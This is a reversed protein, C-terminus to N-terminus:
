PLTIRESSLDAAVLNLYLADSGGTVYVARGGLTAIDDGRGIHHEGPVETPEGTVTGAGDLALAFTGEYNDEEGSVSWQEYLVVYADGGLATIRPREAHMNSGLDTLWRLYNTESEGASSVTQASVADSEEVILSNTGQSMFNSQIRVLAVDRTGGVLESSVEASRETAFLAMYGYTPDSSQVVGGLRTFTNNAGTEGKIKYAAYAGDGGADNYHGLAVYRPYADGLHLEVFGTGDFLARQDFSHSAWMTATRTVSGDLANLHTSMAKQHRTGDLEPDPETNNGHVLLLRDGGWVLRSSAAVMPNVIIDSDSDAEGRAIDVDSEMLVCGSENFKVIRVIDPRHVGNPPYVADVMEDEDVGTAVYYSGGSDRTLGMVRGLSGIRYSRTVEYAQGVEAIHVLYAFEDSEQDQFLVDLTEGSSWPIIEPSKGYQPGWDLPGQLDRANTDFPAGLNAISTEALLEVSLVPSTNECASVQAGGSGDGGSSAVGGTAHSSEGGSSEAGQGAGGSAGMANLGGSSNTGGTDSGGGDSGGVSGGPGSGGVGTAGDDVPEDDGSGGCAGLLLFGVTIVLSSRFNPILM